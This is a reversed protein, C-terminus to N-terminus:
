VYRARLINEIARMVGLLGARQAPTLDNLDLVLQKPVQEIIAGAADRVLEVYIVVAQDPGHLLHTEQVLADQTRRIERPV